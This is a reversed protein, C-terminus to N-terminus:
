YDTKLRKKRAFENMGLVVLSDLLAPYTMGSAQWLKPYMSITTFGPLTNIESFYITGTDEQIFFDVRALGRCKLRVFIDAAVQQLRTQLAPSLSPGVVLETQESELYKASYSYFGDPHFVRIEGPISVKPQSVSDINELVALEIERGDVFAEIIVTDDYLRANNIASILANAEKVKHIGVSSGMVCPKVFLPLGLTEIIQACFHHLAEGQIDRNLMRYEAMYVDPMSAVLQRAIDKEMGLASALVPSGVYAVDGLELLGQLAGDEYLPGHIMPFVIDAKLAFKGDVLLSPLVVSNPTTVPLSESYNRLEEYQNIFCKGTKDIGVPTVHYREPNLNTLVSAASRLSIEHEGSKGGYLLVLEIPQSM